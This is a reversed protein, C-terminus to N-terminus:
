LRRRLQPTIGKFRRRFRGIAHTEARHVRITSEPNSAELDSTIFVTQKNKKGVTSLRDIEASPVGNKKILVAKGSVKRSKIEIKKEKKKAM